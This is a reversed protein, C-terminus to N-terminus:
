VKRWIKKELRKLEDSTAPLQEALAHEYQPDTWFPTDVGKICEASSPPLWKDIITTKIHHTQEFSIGYESQVVCINLYKLVSGTQITIYDFQKVHAEFCLRLYRSSTSCLFDDTSTCM